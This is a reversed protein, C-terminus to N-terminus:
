VRTHLHFAYLLTVYLSSNVYVVGALSSCPFNEIQVKVRELGHHLVAAGGQCEALHSPAGKQYSGVWRLRGHAEERRSPRQLAIRQHYDFADACPPVPM